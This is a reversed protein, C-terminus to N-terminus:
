DDIELDMFLIEGTYADIEVEAENEGNEIEIEYILRDDDDDLEIGEVTGPFEALAISRAKDMGIVAKKGQQQKSKPESENTEDTTTDTSKVAEKEAEPKSDESTDSNQQNVSQKEKEKISIEKNNQNEQKNATPKVEQDAESKNAQSKETLELVEGTNGDILLNYKQSDIELNVKYVPNKSEDDLGVETIKGPYQDEVQAMVDKRTLNPEAKVILSHSIGLGLITVTIIAGLLITLKKSM